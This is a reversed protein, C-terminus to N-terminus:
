ELKWLTMAAHASSHLIQSFMRLISVSSTWLKWDCFHFYVSLLEERPNVFSIIVKERWRSNDAKALQLFAVTHNCGLKCSWVSVIPIFVNQCISRFDLSSSIVLSVHYVWFVILHFMIKCIEEEVRHAGPKNWAWWWLIELFALVSLLRRRIEESNCVWKSWEARSADWHWRIGSQLPFWGHWRTPMWAQLGTHDKGVWTYWYNGSTHETM